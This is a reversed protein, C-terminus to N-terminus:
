EPDPQDPIHKRWGDVVPDPECKIYAILATYNLPIAEAKITQYAAKLDTIYQQWEAVKPSTPDFEGFYDNIWYRATKIYGTGLTKLFVDFAKKRNAASMKPQLDTWDRVIETDTETERPTATYNESDYGQQRIPKIGFGLHEGANLRRWHGSDFVDVVGIERVDRQGEVMIGRVKIRVGTAPIRWM